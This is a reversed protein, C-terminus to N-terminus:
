ASLKGAPDAQPSLLDRFPSDSAAVAHELTEVRHALWILVAVAVMGSTALSLLPVSMATSIAAALTCVSGVLVLGAGRLEPAMWCCAFFLPVAWVLDADGRWRWTAPTLHTYHHLQVHADVSLVFLAGCVCWWTISPAPQNLAIRLAILAACSFWLMPMVTGFDGRKPIQLQEATYGSRWLALPVAVVIMAAGVHWLTRPAPIIQRLTVPSSIGPTLGRAVRAMAGICLMFGALESGEEAVTRLGRLMVPLHLEHTNFRRELREQLYAAVFLGFALVIMWVARGAVHPRRWLAVLGLLTLLGGVAVFPVYVADGHLGPMFPEFLYRREHFSGVEDMFLLMFVAGLAVLGATLLRDRGHARRALDFSMLSILMLLLGSWWSALNMESGLSFVWIYPSQPRFQDAAWTLPLYLLTVGGVVWWWPKDGLRQLQHWM